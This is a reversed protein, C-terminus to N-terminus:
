SSDQIYWFHGSESAGVAHGVLTLEIEACEPNEISSHGGLKLAAAAINGSWEPGRVHEIRRGADDDLNMEVVEAGAGVADRGDAVLDRRAPISFEATRGSVSRCRQAFGDHDGLGCAILEAPLVPTGDEDGCREAGISCSKVVSGFKVSTILDAKVIQDSEMGLAESNDTACVGVNDREFCNRRKFFRTSDRSREYLKRTNGCPDGESAFIGSVNGVAFAQGFADGQQVGDWLDDRDADIARSRIEDRRKDRFRLGGGSLGDKDIGVGALKPVRFVAEPIARGINRFKCFERAGPVDGSSVSDSTTAPGSGGVDTSDTFDQLNLSGISL